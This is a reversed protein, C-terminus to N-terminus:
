SHTVINAIDKRYFKFFIYNVELQGNFLQQRQSQVFHLSQALERRKHIGVLSNSSCLVIAAGVSLVIGSKILFLFILNGSHTNGTSFM